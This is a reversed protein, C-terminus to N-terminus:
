VEWSPLSPYKLRFPCADLSPNAERPNEKLSLPSDPEIVEIEAEDNQDLLVLSELLDTTCGLWTDLGIFIGLKNKNLSEPDYSIVEAGINFLLEGCDTCGFFNDVGAVQVIIKTWSEVVGYESMVWLHYRDILGFESEVFVIMALSGKFVVLEAHTQFISGVNPESDSEFSIVSRRWSDTSLTYVEAEAPPLKVGFVEVYSVIRLIKYDNNQSHYALGLTFSYAYHYNNYPVSLMKFKRISPNWLHLITNVHRNDYCELCFIGNCLSIVNVRYFPIKLRSIETATHDSNCVVTRLEKWCSGTDDDYDTYQVYGNNYSLSKAKNLNLNLNFHKNIFFPTQSSLTVLNLFAGSDEWLMWLSVFNVIGELKSRWELSRWRTAM